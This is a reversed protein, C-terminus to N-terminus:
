SGGGTSMALLRTSSPGTRDHGGAGARVAGSTADASVSRAFLNM